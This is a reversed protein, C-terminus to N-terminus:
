RRPPCGSSKGQCCTSRSLVVFHFTRNQDCTGHLNDQAPNQFGFVILCCPPAAFFSSSCLNIKRCVFVAWHKPNGSTECVGPLVHNGRQNSIFTLATHAKSVTHQAKQWKACPRSGTRGPPASPGLHWDQSGTRTTSQWIRHISFHITKSVLLEMKM